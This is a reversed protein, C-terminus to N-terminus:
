EEAGEVPDSTSELEEGVDEVATGSAKEPEGEAEAGETEEVGVKSVGGGVM